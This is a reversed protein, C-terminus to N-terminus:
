GVGRELVGAKVKRVDTERPFSLIPEAYADNGMLERVTTNSPRAKAEWVDYGFGRKSRPSHGYQKEGEQKRPKRKGSISGVKQRM